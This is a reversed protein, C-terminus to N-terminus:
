DNLIGYLYVSATEPNALMHSQVRKSNSGERLEYKALGFGRLTGLGDRRMILETIRLVLREHFSNLDDRIRDRDEPRDSPVADFRSRLEDLTDRYRLAANRLITGPHTSGGQSPPRDAPRDWARNHVQRPHASTRRLRRPSLENILESCWELLDILNDTPRLHLDHLHPYLVSGPLRGIGDFEDFHEGDITVFFEGRNRTRRKASRPIPATRRM